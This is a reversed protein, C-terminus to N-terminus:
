SMKNVFIESSYLTILKLRINSKPWQHLHSSPNILVSCALCIWHAILIWENMWENLVMQHYKQAFSISFIWGIRSKWKKEAEVWELRKPCGFSSAVVFYMIQIFMIFAYVFCMQFCSIINFLLMCHLSSFFLFSYM